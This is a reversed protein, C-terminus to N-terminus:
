PSSHTRAAVVARVCLMWTCRRSGGFMVRPARAVAAGVPPWCSSSWSSSSPAAPPSSTFPLTGARPTATSPSPTTCSPRPPLAPPALPVRTLSPTHHHSDGLGECCAGALWRRNGPGPSCRRCGRGARLCAGPQASHAVQLGGARDHPLPDQPLGAQRPDGDADVGRGARLVHHVHDANPMTMPLSPLSAPSPHAGQM